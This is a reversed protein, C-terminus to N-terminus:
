GRALMRDLRGMARRTALAIGPATARFAAAVPLPADVAMTWTVRTGAPTELVRWEEAMARIGPVNTREVRYAYRDPTDWALIQEHLAVGGVLKVRRKTGVGFPAPGGYEAEAVAGYWRPLDAVDHAIADFVAKPTARLTNGFSLRLPAANLFDLDVPRTAYM